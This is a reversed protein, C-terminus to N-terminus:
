NPAGTVYFVRCRRWVQGGGRTLLFGPMFIMLKDDTLNAKVTSFILTDLLQQMLSLCPLSQDSVANQMCFSIM